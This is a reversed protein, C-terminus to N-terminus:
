QWGGDVCEEEEDGDEEEQVAAEEGEKKKKPKPAAIKEVAALELGERNTQEVKLFEIEDEGLRQLKWPTRRNCLSVLLQKPPELCGNTYPKLFVNGSLVHQLLVVIKKPRRTPTSEQPEYWDESHDVRSWFVGECVENGAPVPDKIGFVKRPKQLLYPVKTWEILHFGHEKKETDSALAGKGGVKIETWVEKIRQAMVSTFFEDLETDVCKGDVPALQVFQWQNLDEEGAKMMPRGLPAM